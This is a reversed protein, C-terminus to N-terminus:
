KIVSLLILLSLTDVGFIERLERMAIRFRTKVTGLPINLAESAEQQTMGQFYLAELVEQYKTDLGQVHKRLDLVEPNIGEGKVNYVDSLDMRIERQMKRGTQRLKDIAGNRAISILWTFLKSKKNDYNAAKKWYKIFSQQLVEQADDEDKLIGLLIGYISASYNDYLLPIAKKPNEKLLVIIKEELGKSM